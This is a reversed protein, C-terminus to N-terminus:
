SPSVVGHQVPTIGLTDCVNSLKGLSTATASDPAVVELTNPGPYACPVGPASDGWSLIASGTAGPALTIQAQSYVKATNPDEPNNYSTNLIRGASNVLMAAPYGEVACTSGSINTLVLVRYHFGNESYTGSPGLATKLDGTECVPSSGSHLDGNLSQTLQQVLTADFATYDVTTLYASKSFNVSVDVAEIVAGQQLFCVHDSTGPGAHDATPTTVNSWCQDAPDATASSTRTASGTLDTGTTPNTGTETSVCHQFGSGIANWATAAKAASSYFYILHTVGAAIASDATNLYGNGNYGTYYEYEDATAGTNLATIECQDGFHTLESAISDEPPRVEGIDGGIRTGYADSGPVWAITSSALPLDIANYWNGPKYTGPTLSTTPNAPPTTDAPSNPTADPSATAPASASASTSPQATGTHSVPLAGGNGHGLSSAAIGGAAAVLALSATCAVLRQRTRRQGGRRRAAAPGPAHRAGAADILDAMLGDFRESM